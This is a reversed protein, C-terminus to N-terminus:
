RLHTPVDAKNKESKGRYIEIIHLLCMIKVIAHISIVKEKDEANERKRLKRIVPWLHWNKKFSKSLMNQCDYLEQDNKCKKINIIYNKILLSEKLRYEDLSYKGSTILFVVLIILDVVRWFDIVQKAPSLFYSAFFYILVINARNKAFWEWIAKINHWLFNFRSQHINLKIGRIHENEFREVATKQSKLIEKFTYPTTNMTLVNFHMRRRKLPNYPPNKTTLCSILFMLFKDHSTKHESNNISLFSVGYYQWDQDFTSIGLEAITEREIEKNLDIRYKSHYNMSPLDVYVSNHYFPVHEDQFESQGNVSCYYTGKDISEESRKGIILCNDKTIINASVAITNTNISNKLFNNLNKLMYKELDRQRSPLADSNIRKKTLLYKEQLLDELRDMQQMLSFRSKNKEILNNFFPHYIIVPNDMCDLTAYTTRVVEFILYKVDKSSTPQEIYDIRMVKPMVGSYYVENAIEYNSHKFKEDFTLLRFLENEGDFGEKIMKIKGTKEEFSYKKALLEIVGL